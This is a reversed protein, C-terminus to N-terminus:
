PCVGLAYAALVVLLVAALVIWGVTRVRRADGHTVIGVYNYECAGRDHCQSLMNWWLARETESRYGNM